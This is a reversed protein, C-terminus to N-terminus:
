TPQASEAFRRLEAWLPQFHALEGDGCQREFAPKEVQWYYALGEGSYDALLAPLNHIHDAEVACRSADGAWGAARIRLSAAGLIELLIRAIEPPCNM